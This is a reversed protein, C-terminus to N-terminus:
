RDGRGHRPGRRSGGPKAGLEAALAQAQAPTLRLAYDSSRPPRLGSPASQERQALWANRLRTRAALQLRTVEDQVQSGGKQALM